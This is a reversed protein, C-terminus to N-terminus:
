SFQSEAFSFRQPKILKIISTLLKLEILM